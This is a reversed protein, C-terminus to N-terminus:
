FAVIRKAADVARQPINQALAEANRDILKQATLHTLRHGEITM